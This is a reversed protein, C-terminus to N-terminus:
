DLIAPVCVCYIFDDEDDSKSKVDKIWQYQRVWFMFESFDGILQDEYREYIPEFAKYIDGLTPYYGNLHRFMQEVPMPEKAKKPRRNKSFM